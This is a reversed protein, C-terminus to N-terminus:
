ALLAGGGRVELVQDLDARLKGVFKEMVRRMFHRVVQKVEDVVDQAEMGAVGDRSSLEDRKATLTSHLGQCISPQVAGRM